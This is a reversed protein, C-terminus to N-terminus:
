NEKVVYRFDAGIKILLPFAGTEILSKIFPRSKLDRETEAHASAIVCVGTNVANIMASADDPTLEDCILIEPSMSRLLLTAAAAKKIGCVADVLGATLEPVYLENREDCLGVRFARGLSGDSLARAMSKLLTTKGCNPPSYVLAGKLGNECVRRAAETGFDKIFRRLRLNIGYIKRFGETQGDKIIGEGCVGARCGRGFPIYGNKVTDGFSYLSSRSLLAVCEQLETETCLLAREPPCPRGEATFTYNRGGSTVSAPGDLRLRIETLSNTVKEPLAAVARSLRIPLYLTLQELM